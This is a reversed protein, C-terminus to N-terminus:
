RKRTLVILCLHSENNATHPFGCWSQVPYQVRFNSHLVCSVLIYNSAQLTISGKCENQYAIRLVDHLCIRIAVSISNFPCVSSSLLKVAWQTSSKLFDTKAVPLGKCFSDHVCPTEQNLLAELSGTCNNLSEFTAHTAKTGLSREGSNIVLFSIYLLPPFIALQGCAMERIGDSGAAVYNEKCGMNNNTMVEDSM